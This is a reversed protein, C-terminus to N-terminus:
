SLYDFSPMVWGGLEKELLNAVSITVHDNGHISAVQMGLPMGQENLGAPVQTVPVEMVNLIATYAFHFPLTLPVFHHPAVRSYSPYLMVGSPGILGTLEEKLEKGMQVFKNTRKVFKKPLKEIAALSIAPLTHRSFGLAWKLIELYPKIPKGEGLLEAFSPGGAASLMASWIDMSHKLTEIKVQKVTAGNKELAKGANYIAQKMDQAVTVAGNGDVVIVSLSSFDVADPDGLEMPECGTDQGDPGALVKLLPWLDEARRALPGTTLYRRAENIVTFPHQGTGPVLGGSAKHGFVGNFFAPMRISGGIDAGLGFPSAGAGIIAGEGGSSGGVIRKPNYPNNTTGYIRNSTEMWMCLEPINTVGMPIAGAKRLREVATADKKAVVDKRALLGASNPMGELAFNEKISCPVGHFPPLSEPPDHKVREDAQKAEKRALDFREKVVANIVPNVKQIHNIHETLVQESSFLGERIGKALELGSMKLMDNM